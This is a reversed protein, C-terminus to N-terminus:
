QDIKVNAAKILAQNQALEKGIFAAFEAATATRVELGQHHLSQKVEATNVVKGILGNLRQVIEPPVGAPAVVGYWATRDFDALGSEHLTPLDPLLSARERGTLAIPRLRGTKLFPLAGVITPFSLDVEGSAVALSADSAGKYPIHTISIKTRLSLLEGVLHAVSGVGPSSYNLKGPQSRVLALFEKFNRAPVSPHVALLFSGNAVVAVPAFDRQLSYRLDSRLAPRIADAAVMLLLTYGDAPAKAVAETAIAGAAGTRNEVIVSQGLQGSLQQAVLRAIVDAGGGPSFGVLIRIPKVPYQQASADTHSLGFCGLVACTAGLIFRFM